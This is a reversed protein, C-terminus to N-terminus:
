ILPCPLPGLRDLGKESFFFVGGAHWFRTEIFYGRGGVEATGDFLTMNPCSM